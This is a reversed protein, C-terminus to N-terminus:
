YIQTLRLGSLLKRLTISVREARERRVVQGNIQLEDYMAEKICHTYAYRAEGFMFLVSGVKLDLEIVQGLREFHMLVSSLLSIIMIGDDFRMLDVHPVIGGGKSYFNV